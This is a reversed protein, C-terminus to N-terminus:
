LGVWKQEEESLIKGDLDNLPVLRKLRPDYVRQFIFALEAQWFDKEYNPPIDHGGELRL